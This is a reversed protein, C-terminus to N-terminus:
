FGITKQIWNGFRDICKWIPSLLSDVVICVVIIIFALVFLIPLTVFLNHNFYCFLGSVLPREITYVLFPISHLLYIAFCHKALQNVTSSHFEIGGLLVFLVVANLILIPSNYPFSLKWLLANLSTGRTSLYLIVLTCNLAFYSAILWGCRWLRWKSSYTKLISGIQYILMFNILNKGEVYFSNRAFSGFYLSVIAFVSIMYWRKCLSSNDIFLNLLPSVLFLGLYSKIFWFDSHSIFLFARIVSHTSEANKVALAINPVSYVFLVGLLVILGRSSPRIQFYGSILIFVVVGVHLPIWFARIIYCDPNDLVLWRLLHYYVIFLM